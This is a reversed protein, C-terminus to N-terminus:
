SLRASILGEVSGILAFATVLFIIISFARLMIWKTTWAQINKQKFYMEVPFYITLPWFGFGGLLGIFQNFYPFMMATATTSIVYITRFCLRLLNLQFGPLLPFKHTLSKNLFRNDPYKRAIWSETVAFVPQSYIQYGGVLHLVICANAFDILWYPEYFGFGTLLNGPTKEGFAAYGFGGCCLYFFTTVVIAITSAKKMSKSESPPSKLTDQIELLILSYPYAFAIDGLAQSVNWVKDAARYASVGAIGGKVFGNAIVQAFGLAFGISAYSVSMTASVISLWQLNHFDPIQSLVVQVVGFLLMYLSGEYECTAEHGEKHYCNSKLIARMSIAATITYAIGTGYLGIQSFLSCILANRKGLTEHVAELYSRNRKPGFEPDPYRYCDCLLFASLLTVTRKIGPQASADLFSSAEEEVGMHGKLCVGKREYGVSGCSSLGMKDSSKKRILGEVSGILAFATVLFCIISFSRLLIWKTTWAEINRQKFYMEVPFYVSLPWFSFGGFLGIVQNFYPFGMAITTTSIVYITRLCLRLLNLQFDPLRPIKCIVNKNVFRSIPAGLHVVICANAFNVLWYTENSFGFGTLLNGPTKDGFAAYGFGGCGLYLFTTIVIGIATAKKMTKNESPPSKLTDQIEMVILSYPFAFAIDGVAQSVKWLKDAASYATVGAMTGKVYGNGIVQAFGLAFGIISYAFSMIAALISLWQINHFDPLQSLVLQVAGFLLIYLTGEYECAAERGQKHYCKSKQIAGNSPFKESFWREVFEFVPQSFLQYGGVLHLVVCANAFDILWYPEYFGFGTLLNGPTNNGFAAYGFCGCCLYFFTTLIMAIMSAKKMTKNEPPPSKLTDQIELIELLVLAYPYSYAIDGLAQFALWLKKTRTSAPVGAISGKIMGNGIVEAFGLGFGTVSYAFSMIAAIVSLWKISHFDPIQSAVIQVAGFMLMNPIDKHECPAAHGKEHYCNSRRIASMCTSTTIVYAIGIGYMYLYQFMGCLCTQTKGLNVRVADMYSYNRTGTVPDPCRYCGSLLVVSAYTVIAFCLMAIPGAIWGLQAVSWALSLVGSGIVATIIHAICSWLTGTFGSYCFVFVLNLRDSYMVLGLLCVFSFTRLVIWKRTWAGIKKQVFYMEVPFYIALPWFNLAGLVGLVQNFYPFVMAVAATSAVYVTRFCLRFLNIQLTPILPLKFSHFNNVFGSSPFKRSFWGEVFAFVPQSYIQYGGVLHLVICANALDILWYPEFFGFGTLLNGPTDKGFAAYGFCGCCLYFFTTIFISIMSAKKMTKNEAPPSKLTDQIELLIISYPYAFAIDGLAEFALWLKNATTAASVGAISGKITGNEIVQAVGLGFGIFSYTFSMIAAIVSLWEMNHFDPIQSMVIQVMGFLLMYIATGYECSAKRGQRHYCNSRQIARMSTSTTIVYAIATGYMSVYQLLGCFWTQTKCLYLAPTLSGLNVRVAHMYSYNRTGTIPDPSRYCDSLLFASVYTVIAFCLLSVPGAIWGLQATSWALSLVGSGIVATIIHAVCSWLTRSRIKAIMILDQQSAHNQGCYDSFDCENGLYFGVAEMYSRNRIPGHEDDPFRYCERLLYTSVITIAAFLIMCLPGAVWGPQAMSWALSLVGAGTVGTRKLPPEEPENAPHFSGLLPYNRLEEPEHGRQWVMILSDQILCPSM